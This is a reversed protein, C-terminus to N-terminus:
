RSSTPDVSNKFDDWTEDREGVKEIEMASCDDNPAIIMYRSKRRLALNKYAQMIEDPIEIGSNM